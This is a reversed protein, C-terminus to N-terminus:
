ARQGIRASLIQIIRKREAKADPSGSGSRGTNLTALRMPTSGSKNMLVPDAGGALLAEVATACCTRVARHLPAVGDRNLANPDAGAEILCAITAAQAAPNWRTSGPAGDAAYHLPEAGCRNRARVDAGMAIIRRVIPEHYGAAAVHLPTDGANLYHGVGDLWHNEATQRTAGHVVATTALAPSSALLTIAATTDGLAVFKILKALADQTMPYRDEDNVRFPGNVGQRGRRGGRYAGANWLRIM